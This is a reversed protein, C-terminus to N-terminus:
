LYPRVSDALQQEVTILRACLGKSEGDAATYQNLYKSLSKIGMGCGDTILDAATSDSRDAAMKVNTKIWSMGKVAMGPEKDDSGKQLLLTHVASELTKHESKSQALASKLGPDSISDIVEDISTIAMKAGSSCERLLKVTDNYEM